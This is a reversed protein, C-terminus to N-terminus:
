RGASVVGVCTPLRVKYRTRMRTPVIGSASARARLTSPSSWILAATIAGSSMRQIPSSRGFQRCLELFQEVASPIRMANTPNVLTNRTGDNTKPSRSAETPFQEIWSRSTIRAM